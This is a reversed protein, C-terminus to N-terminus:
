RHTLIGYVEELRAILQKMGYALVNGEHIRKDKKELYKRCINCLTEVSPMNPPINKNICPSELIEIVMRLVDMNTDVPNNVMDAICDCPGQSLNSRCNSLHPFDTKM